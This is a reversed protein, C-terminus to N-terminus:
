FECSYALVLLRYRSSLRGLYSPLRHQRPSVKRV